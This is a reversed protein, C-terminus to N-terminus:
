VPFGCLSSVSSLFVADIPIEKMTMYLTDWFDHLSATDFLMSNGNYRQVVEPVGQLIYQYAVIIFLIITLYNM